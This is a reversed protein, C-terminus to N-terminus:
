EQMKDKSSEGSGNADDFFRSIIFMAVHLVENNEHLLLDTVIDFGCCEKMINAVKNSDGQEDNNIKGIMFYDEDEEWGGVIGEESTDWRQLSSVEENFFAGTVCSDRESITQDDGSGRQHQLIRRRERRIFMREGVILLNKLINLAIVKAHWDKIENASISVIQILQDEELMLRKAFAMSRHSIALIVDLYRSASDSYRILFQDDSLQRIISNVIGHSFLHEIHDPPGIAINYAVLSARRQAVKNNCRIFAKLTPVIENNIIQQASEENKSAIIYFIRLIDCSLQIDKVSLLQKLVELIDNMLVIM